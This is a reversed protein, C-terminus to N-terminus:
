ALGIKSLVCYPCPAVALATVFATPVLVPTAILIKKM